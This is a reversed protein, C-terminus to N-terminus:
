IAFGTEKRQSSGNFVILLSNYMFGYGRCFDTAFFFELFSIHFMRIELAITM